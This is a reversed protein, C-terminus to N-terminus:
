IELIFFRFRCNDLLNNLYHALEIKFAPVASNMKKPATLIEMSILSILSPLSENRISTGFLFQADLIVVIKM